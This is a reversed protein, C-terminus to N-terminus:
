NRQIYQKVRTKFPTWEEARGPILPPTQAAGLKLWASDDKWNPLIVKAEPLDWDELFHEDPGFFTAAQMVYETGIKGTAECFAKYRRLGARINDDFVYCMLEYGERVRAQYARYAKRKSNGGVRKPYIKWLTEFDEPYTM